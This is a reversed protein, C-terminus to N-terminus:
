QIKGLTTMTKYAGTKTNRFLRISSQDVDALESIFEWLDNDYMQDADHQGYDPKQNFLKLYNKAVQGGNWYNM